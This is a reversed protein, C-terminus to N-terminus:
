RPAGYGRTMEGSIAYTLREANPWKRDSIQPPGALGKMAGAFGSLAPPLPRIAPCALPIPSRLHKSRADDRRFHGYILRKLARGNGPLSRPGRRFLNRRPTIRAPGTQGNMARDCVSPCIPLVRDEPCAFSASMRLHWGADDRRPRGYTLRRPTRGAAGLHRQQQVPCIARDGQRWRSYIIIMVDAGPGNKEPPPEKKTAM